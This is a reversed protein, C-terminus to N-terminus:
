EVAGAVSEAECAPCMGKAGHKIAAGCGATCYGDAPPYYYGNDCGCPMEGGILSGVDHSGTGGCADCKEREYGCLLCADIRWDVSAGCNRCPWSNSSCETRPVPRTDATPAPAITGVVAGDINPPCTCHTEPTVQEFSTARYDSSGSAGTGRGKWGTALVVKPKGCTGCRTAERLFERALKLATAM